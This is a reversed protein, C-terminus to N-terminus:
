AKAWHASGFIGKLTKWCPDWRTAWCAKAQQTLPLKRMRSNTLGMRPGRGCREKGTWSSRRFWAIPYVTARAIFASKKTEIAASETTQELGSAAPQDKPSLPFPMTPCVMARRLPDPYGNQIQILGSTTGVWVTGDNACQLATANEKASFGSDSYTEFRSGNLRALGFDLGAVWRTGSPTECTSRIQNSPLGDRATFVRFRSGSLVALGQNTCVWIQHKSDPALCFVSDSPLGEATTFRTVGGHRTVRAIGSGLSGIWLNGEADEMLTRILSRHFGAEDFERFHMGDFRILSDQTGLWLFGDRTQLISYITPQFLGEEQGWIRHAYQALTKSPDLALSPLAFFVAAIGSLISARSCL